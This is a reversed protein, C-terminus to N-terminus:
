ESMKVENHFNVDYDELTIAEKKKHISEMEQKFEETKEKFSFASEQFDSSNEFINLDHM